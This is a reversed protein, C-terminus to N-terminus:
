VYIYSTVMYGGRRKWRRGGDGGGCGVLTRYLMRRRRCRWQRGFKPLADKSSWGALAETMAKWFETLGEGGGFGGSGGGSGELTRLCGGFWGTGGSGGELNRHPM